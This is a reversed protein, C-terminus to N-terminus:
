TDATRQTEDGTDFFRTLYDDPELESDRILSFVEAGDGVANEFLHFAQALGVYVGGVDRAYEQAEAEARRIAEDFSVARWLTIREEYGRGDPDGAWGRIVCRVAYWPQDDSRPPDPTM